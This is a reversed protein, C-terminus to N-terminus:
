GDDVCEGITRVNFEFMARTPFPGLERITANCIDRTFAPITHGAKSWFVAAWFSGSWFRQGWM